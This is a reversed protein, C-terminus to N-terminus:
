TRGAPERSRRTSGDADSRLDPVGRKGTSSRDETKSDNENKRRTLAMTILESLGLGIVSGIELIVVMQGM